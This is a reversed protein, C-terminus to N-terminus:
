KNPVVKTANIKQSELKYKCITDVTGIICCVILAVVAVVIYPNEEIFHKM